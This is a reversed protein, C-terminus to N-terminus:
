TTPDMRSRRSRTRRRGRRDRGRRAGQCIGCAGGLAGGGGCARRGDERAPQRFARRRRDRRHDARAADILDGAQRVAHLATLGAVPLCSAQAFSVADPLAAIMDTRVALLEAWGATAMLGVVRTGAKPGSGDAAAAEVVGAFDWGPRHGEAAAAARRLEGRNVSIAAVRVLAESRRGAEPDDVEGLVLQHEKGVVVAKM